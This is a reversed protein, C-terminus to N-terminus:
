IVHTVNRVDAGDTIRRGLTLHNTNRTHFSLSMLNLAVLDHINDLFHVQASRHQFHNERKLLSNGVKAEKNM